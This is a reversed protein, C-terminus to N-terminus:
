LYKKIKRYRRKYINGLINGDKDYRNNEFEVALKHHNEVVEKSSDDYVSHKWEERKFPIIQVVPTGKKITGSFNNKMLFPFQVPAFYSDTDVVGSMVTFPLDMRNLPQTFLVSYGEPTKISYPNYWKYAHKIYESSLEVGPLQAMQHMTIPLNKDSMESSFSSKDDEMNYSFVYDRTTVLFYGMSLSDFVPMCRKITSDKLGDKNKTEAVLPMNKYWDPLMELGTKVELYQTDKDQDVYVFDIFHNDSPEELSRKKWPNKM